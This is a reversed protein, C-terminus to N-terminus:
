RGSADLLRKVFPIAHGEDDGRLVRVMKRVPNKPSDPRVGLVSILAAPLVWAAGWWRSGHVFQWGGFILGIESAFVVIAGGSGWCIRWITSWFLRTTVGTGSLAKRIESDQFQVVTVIAAPVLIIVFVIGQIIHRPTFAFSVIVVALAVGATFVPLVATILTMLDSISDPKIVYTLFVYAWAWALLGPVIFWAGHLQSSIFHSVAIGERPHIM